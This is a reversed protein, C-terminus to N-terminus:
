GEIHLGTGNALKFASDAYAKKTVTETLETSLIDTVENSFDEHLFDLTNGKFLELSEKLVKDKNHHTDVNHM